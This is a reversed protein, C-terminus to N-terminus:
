RYAWRSYKVCLEMVGEETCEVDMRRRKSGAPSFSAVGLVKQERRSLKDTRERRKTETEELYGSLGWPESCCCVSLLIILLSFIFSRILM